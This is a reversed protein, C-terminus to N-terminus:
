STTDVTTPVKHDGKCGEGRPNTALPCRRALRAVFRLHAAHYTGPYRWPPPSQPAPASDEAREQLLVWDLLVRSCLVDAKAMTLHTFQPLQDVRPKDPDSDCGPTPLNAHLEQVLSPQCRHDLLTNGPTDHNGPRKYVATTQLQDM